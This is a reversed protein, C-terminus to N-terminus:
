NTKAKMEESFSHRPRDNNAVCVMGRAERIYSHVCESDNLRRSISFESRNFDVTAHFMAFFYQGSAHDEISLNGDNRVGESTRLRQM